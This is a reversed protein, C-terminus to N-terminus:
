KGVICQGQCHDFEHLFVRANMGYLTKVVVKKGDHYRVMIEKPRIVVVEKNPYSLCGESMSSKQKGIKLVQPNIVFEIKGDMYQVFMSKDINVQNATLGIGDNVKMIEVMEKLEILTETLDSTDVKALKRKLIGDKDNAEILLEM